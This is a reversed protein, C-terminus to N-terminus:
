FYIDDKDVLVKEAGIWEEERKWKTQGGQKISRDSSKRWEYGSPRGSFSPPTEKQGATSSGAGGGRYLTTRRVVPSYDVYTEQGLELGQCFKAAKTSLNNVADNTDTYRYLEKVTADKENKWLEIEAIDKSDLAFSGSGGLRFSPHELMSRTFQAWEVELSQEGAEGTTGSSWDSPQQVSVRLTSTLTGELPTIVTSRVEGGYDGWSDNIEPKATTLSSTPGVYEIVTVYGRESDEIQPYGHKRLSYISEAAM